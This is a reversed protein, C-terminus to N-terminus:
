IFANLLTTKGAGNFGHIVTVPRKIDTAFEIKQIGSFQRFNQIALQKFIM